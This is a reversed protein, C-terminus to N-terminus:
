EQAMLAVEIVDVEFSHGSAILSLSEIFSPPNFGQRALEEHVDLEFFYIQNGPVWEHSTQILACSICAGPTRDDDPTGLAYFGHQFERSIGGSDIYNLLVFLPCESGQIGCVELSQYVIRFTVNLRLGQFDTVDQNITQRMKVDAHGLGARAIHLTPAGGVQRIDTIGSPQDELELRWAFLAWRSFGQAFDGNQLLNRETTLALHIMQDETVVARQDATMTQTETQTWIMAQGEHVTVQSSTGNVEVAYQGTQTLYVTTHPTVLILQFPREEQGEPLTLRVRGSNLQMHAQIPQDSLGFRPQEARILDLETNSYLQLRALTKEVDPTLITFLGTATVNTFITTGLEVERPPEDPLLALRAGSTEVISVTGNNANLHLQLPQTANNLYANVGFPVLVLLLLFFGFGGLLMFWALQQRKQFPEPISEPTPTPTLTSDM